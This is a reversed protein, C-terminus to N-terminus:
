PRMDLPTFPKGNPAATANSDRYFRGAAFYANLREDERATIRDLSAPMPIGALQHAELATIHVERAREAIDTHYIPVLIRGLGYGAPVVGADLEVELLRLIKISRDVWLDRVVGVPKWRWDFVPMGRPDAEGREVHWDDLLRLPQLMLEGKETLMPEDRRMVWAGPGLPSDLPHGAPMLPTGDFPYLPRARLEPQAYFHPAVTEGGENLMYTRPEGPPDPFGSLETRDFPSAQMPYGERKDERRIWLVLLLFFLVFAWFALDPLDIFATLGPMDM